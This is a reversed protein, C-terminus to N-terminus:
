AGAAGAAKLFRSMFVAGSRAAMGVVIVVASGVLAAAAGRIFSEDCPNEM